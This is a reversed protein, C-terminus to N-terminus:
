WDSEYQHGLNTRAKEPRYIDPDRQYQKWTELDWGEQAARQQADSFKQSPRHASQWPEGPKIEVGTPDYVKGDPAKSREWIEERTGRSLKVRKFKSVDAAAKVAKV